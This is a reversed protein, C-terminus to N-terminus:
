ITKYNYKLKELGGIDREMRRVEADLFYALLLMGVGACPLWWASWHPRADQRGFVSPPANTHISPQRALKNQNISTTRPAHEGWVGVQALGAPEGVRLGLRGM